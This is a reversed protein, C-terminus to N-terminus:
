SRKSDRRACPRRKKTARGRAPGIRVADGTEDAPSWELLEILGRHRLWLLSEHIVSETMGLRAAMRDIHFIGGEQNIAFKCMGAVQRLVGALSDDTTAQDCLYVEGTASTEVM